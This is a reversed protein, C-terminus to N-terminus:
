AIGGTPGRRPRSSPPSSSVSDRRGSPRAGAGDGGRHPAARRGPGTTSSSLRRGGGRGRRARDASRTGASAHSAAPGGPRGSIFRGAGCGPAAGSDPARPWTRGALFARMGCGSAITGPTRGATMHISIARRASRGEVSRRPLRLVREGPGAARLSHDHDHGDAREPDRAGGGAPWLQPRVSHLSVRRRGRDSGLRFRHRGDPGWSFRPTDFQPQKTCSTLMGEISRANDGPRTLHILRALGGGAAGSGFRRGRLLAASRLRGPFPPSQRSERGRQRAATGVRPLATSCGPGRARAGNWPRCSVWANAIASFCTFDPRRPPSSCSGTSACDLPIVGATAAAPALSLVLLAIAARAGRRRARM